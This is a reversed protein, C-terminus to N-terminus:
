PKSVEALAAVRRKLMNMIQKPGEAHMVSGEGEAALNILSQLTHSFWDVRERLEVADLEKFLVSTWVTLSKHWGVVM